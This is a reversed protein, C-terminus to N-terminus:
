RMGAAYQGRRFSVSRSFAASQCLRLRHTVPQRRLRFSRFNTLSIWLPEGGGGGWGAAGGGTEQEESRHSARRGDAEVTRMRRPKVLVGRSWTQCASSRM